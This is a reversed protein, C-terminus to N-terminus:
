RIILIKTTAKVSGDENNCFVIYVGTSVKNGNYTKMDWSADGGTSRTEYVLNGSIDTIKITSNRTLGTITINGTFNERVPNPFAYVNNMEESGATGTERVTVIGKDTGFWIEGTSRDAAMSIVRDSLLASNSKNYNKVLENSIESILFVGSRETGFWKRNGGDIAISLIKETGLLYDALGGGDNRPVKIRLAYIDQDFVEGPYYFVAPGQDTGIWINGDLDEAISFINSLSKGEQDRVELNIYRDDDFYGPTSNDDLVFLGHGGPLLIWKHNSRSIIMDGIVPANINYPLSIWTNDNTLVKINNQMGSQTIWLNKDNDIALGYIRVLPQGPIISGLSNEAWHNTLDRNNYEFVGYGWSSVFVHGPDGPVPEVRMADRYDSSNTSWWQRDSFSFLMFPLEKNDYEDTIGGGAVWVKGDSAALSYCNNSDPGEPIYNIFNNGNILRVLGQNRDAIYIDNGKLLVNGPDPPQNGYNSITNLLHGDADIFFISSSCSVIINDQEAEFTHNTTGPLGPLYTTKGYSYCFVSDNDPVANKKNFFLKDEISALCNFTSGSSGPIIDWNGYYALGQSDGSAIFLGKGTAAFVTDNSICFDFVENHIGDISPKWLDKVEKKEINIVIIGQSTSLYAFEDYTRIKNIILEGPLFTNSIDPINIVSGNRYIDINGSMYVIVLAEQDISYAITSIGCDSLGNVKSLKKLENFRCNYITIAYDTSGYIENQGESVINVSHYPLHDTWSGIPGQANVHYFYILSVLIYLFRSM